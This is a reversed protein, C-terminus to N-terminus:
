IGEIERILIYGETKLEGYIYVFRFGNMLIKDAIDDYGRVEIITQDYLEVLLKIVSKYSLDKGYIFKFKDVYKIRGLFFGENM